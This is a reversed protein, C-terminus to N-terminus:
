KILTLREIALIPIDESKGGDIKLVISSPLNDPQSPIINRVIGKLSKDKLECLFSKGMIERKFDEMKFTSLQVKPYFTSM